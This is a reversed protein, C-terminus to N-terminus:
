NKRYAKTKIYDQDAKSLITMDITLKNGDAEELTVTTGSRSFYGARRSYKGAKWERLEYKTTFNRGSNSLHSASSKRGLSNWVSDFVTKDFELKELKCFSGEADRQDLMGSKTLIWHDDPFRSARDSLRLGGPVRKANLDIDGSSGDQYIQRMKLKVNEDIFLVARHAVGVSNNNWKGLTSPKDLNNSVADALKQGEISMGLIKVELDPNFHTTAWCGNGADPDM